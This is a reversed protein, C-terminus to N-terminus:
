VEFGHRKWQPKVRQGLIAEAAERGRGGCHWLDVYTQVVNTCPMRFEGRRAGESFAFVGLDKPILVVLNNGSDVQKAEAMAELKPLDEHRVYLWTKSQRVHPAQIEAASFAAYAAHGDPQSHMEALAIRLATGSMLTFYERREHSDFRYVDRWAFLLKLPDRLVFGGGPTERIFAEDRLHQVVKNVMGLSVDAYDAQHLRRQTWSIASHEPALLARIVRGAEPTGLNATPKPRKHVSPRGTRELHLIGPVSIWCNGALDYWSWGHEECLERMRPSLHPAAFVRVRVRKTRGEEFDRETNVYPFHAPRPDMRCDIWLEIKPGPTVKFTALWDFAREFPAPNHTLRVHQLWQISDLLERIRKGLAKEIASPPRFPVNVNQRTNV